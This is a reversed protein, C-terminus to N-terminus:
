SGSAAIVPALMDRYASPLSTQGAAPPSFVAMATVLHDVQHDIRAAAEIHGANGAAHLQDGNWVTGDGFVLQEIRSHPSDYWGAVTIRDGGPSYDVLLDARHRSLTVDAAAVGDLVIRDIATDHGPSRSHATEHITDMGDGPSFHYSDSGSSGHLQDNGSGGDLISTSGSPRGPDPSLRYRDAILQDNGSGGLLIDNGGNGILTDDGAGGAMADDASSGWGTDAGARGLLIDIDGAPSSDPSAFTTMDGSMIDIRYDTLVRQVGPHQPHLAAAIQLVSLNFLAQDPNRQRWDASKLQDLLPTLSAVPDHALDIQM